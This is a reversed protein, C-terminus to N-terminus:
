KVAMMRELRCRYGYTEYERPEALLKELREECDKRRPDEKWNLWDEMRQWTGIVMTKQADDNNILTEGSIYGKQDM